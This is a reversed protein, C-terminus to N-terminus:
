QSAGTSDTTGSRIEATEIIKRVPAPLALAVAERPLCWQEDADDAVRDAFGPLRVEALRIVLQFHTFTHRREDLLEVREPSRGLNERCWDRPSTGPDAEPLSWLGGWIGSPPRRNLLLRGDADRVLLMLTERRPLARRPRGEPLEMTLGRLAAVCSSVLPCRGCDPRSRTCLMAGLDMMAQNYEGVREAPTEREALQWLRSQVASTGPWGPIAFHRALVRKVNGDLIPHRQGLSLSLVAGASSRGVGPLSQVADFDTPFCGQHRERILVAARHLNRARAYYGLGSWLALVEDIPAGALACVDPFRAIFREFYRIVVSVQTQQLMIESVWVRYPTPETQWPLDKRGEREFWDLLRPAISAGSSVSDVVM